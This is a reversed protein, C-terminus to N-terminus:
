TVAGVVTVDTIVVDFGQTLVAIGTDAGAAGGNQSANTGAVAAHGSDAGNGGNANVGGGGSGGIGQVTKSAATGPLAVHGTVGLVAGAAGAAGLAAGGGGGHGPHGSFTGGGGGGGPYGKTITGTGSIRTKCGCRIASGGAGGAVGPYAVNTSPDFDREADGGKGGAGGKGYVVKGLAVIIRLFAGDHVTHADIAYGTNLTSVVDANVNLTIKDGARTVAGGYAAAIATAVDYTTNQDVSITLRFSRGMSILLPHNFPM